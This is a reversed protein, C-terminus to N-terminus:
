SNSKVLQDFISIKLLGSWINKCNNKFRWYLDNIKLNIHKVM